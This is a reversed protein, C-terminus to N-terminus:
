ELVLALAPATMSDETFFMAGGFKMTGGTTSVQSQVLAPLGAVALVTVAADSSDIHAAILAVSRHPQFVMFFIPNRENPWQVGDGCECAREAASTSECDM